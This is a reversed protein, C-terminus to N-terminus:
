RLRDIWDDMVEQRDIQLIWGADITRWGMQILFGLDTGLLRVLFLVSLWMPCM